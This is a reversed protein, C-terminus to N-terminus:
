VDAAERMRDAMRRIRDLEKLQLQSLSSPSSSAFSSSQPMTLPSQQLPHTVGPLYTQLPSTLLSTPYTAPKAMVSAGQFIPNFINDGLVLSSNPSSLSSRGLSSITPRASPLCPVTNLSPPPIFSFGASSPNRSSSAGFASNSRTFMDHPKNQGYIPQHILSHGNSTGIDLLNLNKNTCQSHCLSSSAYLPSSKSMPNRRRRKESGSTGPTGSSISILSYAPNDAPDYVLEPKEEDLHSLFLSNAKPKNIDSQRLRVGASATFRIEKLAEKRGTPTTWEVDVVRALSKLDIGNENGSSAFTGREVEKGTQLAEFAADRQNMAEEEDEQEQMQEEKEREDRSKEKEKEGVVDLELDAVHNTSQANADSIAENSSEKKAEVEKKAEEEAAVKMMERHLRSIQEVTDITMLGKKKLREILMALEEEKKSMQSGKAFHQMRNRKGYMRNLRNRVDEEGERVRIIRTLQSDTHRKELAANIYAGDCVHEVYDSASYGNTWRDDLTASFLSYFMTIPDAIGGMIPPAARIPLKLSGCLPFSSSFAHSPSIFSRATQSSSGRLVTSLSTSQSFLASNIPILGAIRQLLQPLQRPQVSSVAAANQESENKNTDDAMMLEDNEDSENLVRWNEREAAVMGKAIGETMWNVTSDEEDWSDLYSSLSHPLLAADGTLLTPNGKEKDGDRFAKLREKRSFSFGAANLAISALHPHVIVSPVIASLLALSPAPEGRSNGVVLCSVASSRLGHLSSARDRIHQYPNMAAFASSSAASPTFAFGSAVSAATVCSTITDPPQIISGVAVKGSESAAMAERAMIRMKEERDFLKLVNMQRVFVDMESFVNQGAMFRDILGDGPRTRSWFKTNKDESATALSNGLPHWCMDTIGRDHATVTEIADPTDSLYYRLMGETTGEVFLKEEFPHWRIKQTTQEYTQWMNVAGRKKGAGFLSDSAGADRMFRVDWMKITEDRGYSLLHTGNVPNFTVGSVEERHANITKVCAADDKMRVDWLKMTGDGSGSVLVGLSPHWDIGKVRADHGKLTRADRERGLPCVKIYMDDSCTALFSDTPSLCLGRVPHSHATWKWEPNLTCTRMQVDGKHSGIMLFENNHTWTMTTIATTDVTVVSGFQYTMGNWITVYGVSNGTFVHRADPTWTVAGLPLAENNTSTHVFRTCANSAPKHEYFPPLSINRSESSSPDFPPKDYFRPFYIRNEITRVLSSHFDITRKQLRKKPPM